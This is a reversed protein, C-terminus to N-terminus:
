ADSGWDHFGDHHAKDQDFPARQQPPTPRGVHAVIWHLWRSFGYGTVLAAFCEGITSFQVSGNNGTGVAKTFGPGGQLIILKFLVLGLFLWVIQFLMFNRLQRPAVALRCAWRRALRAALSVTGVLLFSVFLVDGLYLWISSAFVSRM